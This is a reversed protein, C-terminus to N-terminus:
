ADEQGARQRIQRARAIVPADVMAGEVTLAADGSAAAALVRGAWDLEAATPAFGARAPAVQAPHILLKGGFGMEVAHACDTAMAQADRIATTVGDIPAPRGALRSALVLRARAMLLSERTHGMALDAAYDISGFALRMAAEALAEARHLGLASEVLAIVPKGTVEAVRLVDQPAEAKPLLIACLPLDRMAALDDRHWDTGAANIRVLLPVHPPMAAIADALGARAGAKSQPAVADELDLIVADPGAAQAKGFREPRDGPVFLPLMITAIDQSM